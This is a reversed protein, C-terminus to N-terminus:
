PRDDVKWDKNRRLGYYPYYDWPADKGQARPDGTWATYEQLRKSLEKLADSYEPLAAVNKLQGPDSRLDYLEEIPRMGFALYYLEPFGEKKDMLLTKTPSSDVEGFSIARACYRADPNGSPWRGPEYNRIYLYDQTRIARCPYGKGGRRCGDHREMATFASERLAAGPDTFTEMMSRATMETQIELEAAELFTAALDSL